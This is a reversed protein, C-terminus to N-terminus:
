TNSRDRIQMQVRFPFVAGEVECGIELKTERSLNDDARLAKVV